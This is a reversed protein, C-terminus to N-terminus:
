QQINIGIGNNDPLDMQPNDSFIKLPRKINALDVKNPNSFSYKIFRKATKQRQAQPNKMFLDRNDYDSIKERKSNIRNIANTKKNHMHEAVKTYDIDFRNLFDIPKTNTTSHISNNYFGISRIVLEEIDVNEDQRKLIRIHELLSLHMREIDSNGTHSHPTTFHTNINNERCFLKILANNFENDMILLEPKGLLAIREELKLKITCMNKDSLKHVSGMKTFRDITTLFSIRHVQFIDMHVIMNPRDPTVTHNFTKQFPKRDYKNENCIECGNIFKNIYKILNPFFYSYRIEEFNELVGRHNTDKHKNDIIQYLEEETQIDIALKKCKVFKLDQRNGFLSILKREVVAYLGEELESFIGVRGRRM